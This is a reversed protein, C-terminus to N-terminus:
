DRLILYEFLAELMWFYSFFFLRATEWLSLWWMWPGRRIKRWIKPRPFCFTIPPVIGDRTVGLICKALPSIALTWRSWSWNGVCLNGVSKFRMEIELLHPEFELEFYFKLEALNELTPGVEFPQQWTLEVVLNLKMKEYQLMINKAM